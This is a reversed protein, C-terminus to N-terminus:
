IDLPPNCAFRVHFTVKIISGKAVRENRLIQICEAESLVLPRSMEDRIVARQWESKEFANNVSIQLVSDKQKLMKTSELGMRILRENRKRQWGLQALQQEIETIRDTKESTSTM